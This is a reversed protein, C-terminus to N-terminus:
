VSEKLKAREAVVLPMFEQANFGRLKAMQTIMLEFDAETPRTSEFYLIVDALQAAVAKIDDNSEREKTRLGLYQGLEVLAAQKDHFEVSVNEGFKTQTRNIKKILHLAGTAKAKQYDFYGEDNFADEISSFAINVIAGQIQAADIGALKAAYDKRKQVLERISTNALLLPANARATDYSASPYALQYAETQNKGKSLELAFKEHRSNPKKKTM